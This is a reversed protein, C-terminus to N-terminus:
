DPRQKSRHVAGPPSQLSLDVSPPDSRTLAPDHTLVMMELKRLGPGPDLGLESRLRQRADAFASLADNPRGARYLAVMLSAWVSERWPDDSLLDRCLFAAADYRASRILAVVLAESLQARLEHLQHVRHVVLPNKSVEFAIPQWRDLVARLEAEAPRSQRLVEAGENLFGVLDINAPEINLFYGDSDNGVLGDVQNETLYQRLRSVATYVANPSVNSREHWAFRALRESSVKSPCSAALTALIELGRGAPIPVETGGREIVGRGFFQLEIDVVASEHATSSSGVAHHGDIASLARQALPAPEVPNIIFGQAGVRSINESDRLEPDGSMLLAAPISHRNESLITRCVEYGNGDPLRIDIIALSFDRERALLIAERAGFATIPELGVSRLVDCYYQASDADDEVVLVLSSDPPRRARLVLTAEVAGSRDRVEVTADSAITGSNRIGDATARDGLLMRCRRPDIVGDPGIGGKDVIAGGVNHDDLLAVVDSFTGLDALDGPIADEPDSQETRDSGSIPWRTVM